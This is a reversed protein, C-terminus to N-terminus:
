FFTGLILGCPSFGEIAAMAVRSFGHGEVLAMGCGKRKPARNQAPCSKPYPVVKLRAAGSEDM